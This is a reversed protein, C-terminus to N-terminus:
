SDPGLLKGDFRCNTLNTTGYVYGIFGGHDPYNENTSSNITVSNWCNIINLDYKQYGVLGAAYRHSTNITGAVHIRKLTVGNYGYRFPAWYDGESTLDLTMTHGDGDFTGRFSNDESTGVTTTVNIDATLKYYKNRYTTNENNIWNAFTKWDIDSGILYPDDATGSGYLTRRVEFTVIKTGTYSGKGTITLTYEGVEQVTAPSFSATYDTGEALTKGEISM